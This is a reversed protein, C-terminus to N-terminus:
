ILRSHADTSLGRKNRKSQFGAGCFVNPLQRVEYVSACVWNPLQSHSLRLAFVNPRTTLPIQIVLSPLTSTQQYHAMIDGGGGQVGVRVKSRM